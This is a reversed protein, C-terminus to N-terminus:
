VDKFYQVADPCQEELQTFFLIKQGKTAGKLIHIYSEIMAPPLYHYKRMWDTIADVTVGVCQNNFWIKAM